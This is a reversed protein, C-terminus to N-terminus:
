AQKREFDILWETPLGYTKMFEVLANRSVRRDRSGPIRYGRLVEKDILEQIKRSCLSTIRAVEGTTFVGKIHKM